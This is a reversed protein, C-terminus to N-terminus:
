RGWCGSSRVFPFIVAPPLRARWRQPMNCRSPPGMGFPIALPLQMALARTATKVDQKSPELKLRIDVFKELYREGADKTGFRHHALSELYDANVFLCFVFGEANFVLKMAELFAITYDPHCRDLEDILVVVRKTKAGQDACRPDHRDAAAIGKGPMNPPLSPASWSSAM